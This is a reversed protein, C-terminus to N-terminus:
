QLTAIIDQDKCMLLEEGAVNIKQVAFDSFLVRDDASVSTPILQGQQNYSGPGVAVVSGQQLPTRASDPLLVGGISRTEQLRKVLVNNFLPKISKLSSIM